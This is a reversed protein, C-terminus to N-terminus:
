PSLELIFLLRSFAGSKFTEKKGFSISDTFRTVTGTLVTCSSNSWHMGVRGNSALPTGIVALYETLSAHLFLARLDHGGLTLATWPADHAIAPGYSRRLDNSLSGVASQLPGGPFFNLYFNISFPMGIAKAAINKFEKPSITYSKSKLGWQIASYIIYIIVVNRMLKSLIFAM